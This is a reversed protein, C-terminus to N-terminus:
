QEKQICILQHSLLIDVINEIASQLEPLNPLAKEFFTLLTNVSHPHKLLSWILVSTQNLSVSKLTFLNTICTTDGDQHENVDVCRIFFVDHDKWLETKFVTPARYEATLDNIIEGQHSIERFYHKSGWCRWENQRMYAMKIAYPHEETRKLYAEFLTKKQILAEGFLNAPCYYTYYTLWFCYNYQDKIQRVAHTTARHDAHDNPNTLASDDLCHITCPINKPVEIDLISYLTDCFDQWSHYITSGDVASVACLGQELKTLSQHQYQSSGRGDPFGDPLRLCYSSIYQLRYCIIPHHNIIVQMPTLSENERSMASQISAIAGQENIQWWDDPQGADDATTYIFVVRMNDQQLDHFVQHGAFLQWDDYHPVIYVALRNM